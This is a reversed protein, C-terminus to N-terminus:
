KKLKFTVYNKIKSFNLQFKNELPFYIIIIYYYNYYYM